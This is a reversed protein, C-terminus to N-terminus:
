FFHLAVDLGLLGGLRPVRWAVTDNLLVNWHSLMVLGDAHLSVLFRGLERSAALRLGVEFFRGWSTAPRDVGGGRGRLWGYRGLLCASAASLHACGAASSGLANLDVEGGGLQTLTTPLAADQALEASFAHFRAAVFLRGVAAPGPVIGLAVAPGFGIALRLRDTSSPVPPAPPREDTPAPREPSVPEGREPRPSLPQEQSSTPPPETPPTPRESSTRAPRGGDETKPPPTATAGAAVRGSAVRSEKPAGQEVLQLQLAVAFAVNAAIERCDRGRSLLLREGLSRGRADTWAIRGQFGADSRSLTVTVRRDGDARFPDHGLQEIVMRRLDSEGVCGTEEAARYELQVVTDAAGRAPSPAGIAATAVLAAGLALQRSQLGRAYGFRRSRAPPMSAPAHRPLM